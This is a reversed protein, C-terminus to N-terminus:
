DCYSSMEGGTEIKGAKHCIIDRSLSSADEKVLMGLSDVAANIGLTHRVCSIM